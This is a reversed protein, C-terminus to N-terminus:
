SKKGTPKAAPTGSTMEADVTVDVDEGVAVGGTELAKNWKLGWDKRNIKTAASFGRRMLGYPDKMPDTLSDVNWTVEKTVGHMTLDGKMTWKGDGAKEFKSSKFKITPYKGADFFDASKLHTDRKPNNTSITAVPAEAEMKWKSSDKDDIDFTGKVSSLDGAVNSIMMHRIKFHINSHDPDLNWASAMTLGSILGAAITILARNRLTFNM